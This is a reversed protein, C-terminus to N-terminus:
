CQQVEGQEILNHQKELFEKNNKDNIFKYYKERISKNWDELLKKKSDSCLVAIGTYNDVIEYNFIKSNLLTEIKTKLQKNNKSNYSIISVNDDLKEVNSYYIEFKRNICFARKIKM